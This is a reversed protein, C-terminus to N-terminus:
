DVVLDVRVNIADKFNFIENEFIVKCNNEGFAKHLSRVQSLDSAGFVFSTKPKIFFDKWSTDLKKVCVCSDNVGCLKGIAIIQISTM